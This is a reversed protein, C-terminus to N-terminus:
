EDINNTDLKSLLVKRLDAVEYFADRRKKLPINAYNRLWQSIFTDIEKTIDRAVRREVQKATLDVDTEYKNMWEETVRQEAEKLTSGLIYRVMEEAQIATLLNTGVPENRMPPKGYRAMSEKNFEPEFSIGADPMFDKPLKWQLFRNVIENMVKDEWGEKTQNM